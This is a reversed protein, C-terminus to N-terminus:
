YFLRNRFAGQYILILFILRKRRMAFHKYLILIQAQMVRKSAACTLNWIFFGKKNSAQVQSKPKL